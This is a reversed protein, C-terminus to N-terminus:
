LFNFKWLSQAYTPQAVVLQMICILLTHNMTNGRLSAHKIALWTIVVLEILVTLNKMFGNRKAYEDM